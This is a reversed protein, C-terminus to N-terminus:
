LLLAENLLEIAKLNSGLQEPIIDHTHYVNLPIVKDNIIGIRCRCQHKYYWQSCRWIKFNGGCKVLKIKKDFLFTHGAYCLRLNQLMMAKYIPDQLILSVSKQEEAHNHWLNLPLFKDEVTAVKAECNQSYCEACIWYIKDENAALKVKKEFLFINNRYLLQTPALLSNKQQLSELDQLAAVFFFTLILLHLKTM